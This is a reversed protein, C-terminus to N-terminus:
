ARGTPLPVSVRSEHVLISRHTSRLINSFFFTAGKLPMSVERKTSLVTRHKTKKAAHAGM